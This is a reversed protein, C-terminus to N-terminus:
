IWATIFRGAERINLKNGQKNLFMANIKVEPLVLRVLFKILM